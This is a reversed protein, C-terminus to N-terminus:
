YFLELIHVPEVLPCVAETFWGAAEYDGWVGDTRRDEVTYSDPLSCWDAPTCNASKGAREWIATLNIPEVDEGPAHFQRLLEKYAPSILALDVQWQALKWGGFIAVRLCFERLLQMAIEAERKSQSLAQEEQSLSAGRAQRRTRKM